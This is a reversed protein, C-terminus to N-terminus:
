ASAISVAIGSYHAMGTIPDIDNKGTLYNVNAISPHGHPVSIAGRRISSDVKAVGIIVGNASRVTVPTADIINATAADDPHIIVEVPANLYGLQSNLRRRQRRPVMVLPEPDHLAALQDVLLQPALRWGGLNAVHRDVWPAPLTNPVEVAGKDILEAYPVRARAAIQALLVDDTADEIPMGILDFGLRQGLEALVWWSSRRDGIVDVVRSTHQGIIRPLLTDWMTVDARELPDKTPLLHTSLATTENEIIEITAFVELKELAPVLKSTDPFATVLNGGFNLVARINGANIEDPLVACPWEGLFSQVEPRSRPGPGFSGEAPTIPLEMEELQYGFGPHFWYGGERNLSGTVGMLAWMLWQTVNASASM